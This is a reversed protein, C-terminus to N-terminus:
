QINDSSNQNRLRLREMQRLVSVAQDMHKRRLSEYDERSLKGMAQDMEIERIATYIQAKRELLEEIKESAQDYKERNTQSVDVLLPLIVAVFVVITLLTLFLFLMEM